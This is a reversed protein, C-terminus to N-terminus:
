PQVKCTLKAPGTSFAAGVVIAPWVAVSGVVDLTKIEDRPCKSHMGGIIVGILICGAIWYGFITSM